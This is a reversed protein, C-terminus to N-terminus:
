VQKPNIFPHGAAMFKPQCSKTSAEGALMLFMFCKHCNKCHLPYFLFNLSFAIFVVCASRLQLSLRTETVQYVPKTLSNKLSPHVVLHLSIVFGLISLFNKPPLRM